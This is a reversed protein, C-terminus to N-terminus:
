GQALVQKLPLYHEHVAARYADLDGARAAALMQAHALATRNINEPTSAGLLPVTLTHVSWFADTLNRFLHNELPALLMSHFTRDQETFLSGTAALSTMEAVVQDLVPEERGKWAAVVEPALAHDLLERVQVVDRLAQFDDGPNLRGRFVLSEVMPRMSVQGVFMGHGHRVDVIDLAVLTRVAERVSSRSVGLKTCLQSETPLPDGPGLNEKIIYDKIAAMATSSQTTPLTTLGTLAETTVPISTM